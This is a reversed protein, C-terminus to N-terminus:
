GPALGAWEFWDNVRKSGLLEEFARLSLLAEHHDEGAGETLLLYSYMLQDLLVLPPGPVEPIEELIRLLDQRARLSQCVAAIDAAVELALETLEPSRGEQQFRELLHPYVDRDRQLLLAAAVSRKFLLALDPRLEPPVDSDDLVFQRFESM